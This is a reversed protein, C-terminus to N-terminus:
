EFLLDIIENGTILYFYNDVKEEKFLKGIYEKFGENQIKMAKEPRFSPNVSCKFNIDEKLQKHYRLDDIPDDTTGIYVVNAMEILETQILMNFLKAVKLLTEIGSLCKKSLAYKLGYNEFYKQYIEAASLHKSLPIRKIVEIIRDKDLADGKCVERFANFKDNFSGTTYAWNGYQTHLDMEGSILDNDVKTQYVDEVALLIKDPTETPTSSTTGM